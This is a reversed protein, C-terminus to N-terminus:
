NDMWGPESFMERGTLYSYVIDAVIILSTILASKWLCNFVFHGSLEFRDYIKAFVLNSLFAGCYVVIIDNVRKNRLDEFYKSM